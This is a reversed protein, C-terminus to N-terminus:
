AAGRSSATERNAILASAQTEPHANTWDTFLAVGTLVGLVSYLGVANLPMTREHAPEQAAILAEGVGLVGALMVATKPNISKGRTVALLGNAIGIGVAFSYPHRYLTQMFGDSSSM